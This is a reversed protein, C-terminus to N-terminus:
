KTESQQEFNLPHLRGYNSNRPSGDSYHKSCFKDYCIQKLLDKADDRTVTQGKDKRWTLAETGIRWGDYQRQETTCILNLDGFRVIGSQDESLVRLKEATEPSCFVVLDVDSNERPQGYAHSGTLFAQM